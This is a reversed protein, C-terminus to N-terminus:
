DVHRLCGDKQPLLDGRSEYIPKTTLKWAQQQKTKVFSYNHISAFCLASQCVYLLTSANCLHQVHSVSGTWSSLAVASLDVTLSVDHILM